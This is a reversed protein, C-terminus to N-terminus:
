YNSQNSVTFGSTTATSPQTTEVQGANLLEGLNKKFEVEEEDKYGIYYIKDIQDHNFVANQDSKVIGEPYLCGCYDYMTNMDNVDMTCFGTIMLRKSGGKLMVVTGVPLFKEETNNM